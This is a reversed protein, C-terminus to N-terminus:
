SCEKIHGGEKLPPCLCDYTGFSASFMFGKILLRDSRKAKKEWRPWPFDNHTRLNDQQIVFVHTQIESLLGKPVFNKNEM